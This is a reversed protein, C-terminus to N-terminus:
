IAGSFELKSLTTNHTVAESLISAWAPRIIGDRVYGALTYLVQAPKRLAMAPARVIPPMLGTARVRHIPLEAEVIPHEADAVMGIAAALTGILAEVQTDSMSFDARYMGRGHTALWISGDANRMLDTLNPDDLAELVEPGLQRKLLALSREDQIEEPTKV